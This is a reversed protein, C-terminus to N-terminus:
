DCWEEYHDALYKFFKQKTEEREKEAQRLLKIFEEEYKSDEWTIEFNSWQKNVPISKCQHHEELIKYATSDFNDDILLDGLECAKRLSNTNREIEEDSLWVDSPYKEWFELMLHLKYVILELLYEGAFDQDYKIFPLWKKRWHDKCMGEEKIRKKFKDKYRM